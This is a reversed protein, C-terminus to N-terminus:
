HDRRLASIEGQDQTWSVARGSRLIVTIAVSSHIGDPRMEVREIDSVEIGRQVIQSHFLPWDEPCFGYTMTGERKRDSM